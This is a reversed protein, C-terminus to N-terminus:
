KKLKREITIPVIEEELAHTIGFDKFLRNRLEIETDAAIAEDLDATGRGGGAYYNGPRNLAVYATKMAM